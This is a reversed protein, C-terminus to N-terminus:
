KASNDENDNANNDDSDDDEDSSDQDDLETSRKALDWVMITTDTSGSFLKTGCMMLCNVGIKHGVYVALLQKSTADFARTLNDSCGTYVIGKHFKICNVTNNHGTFTNLAEVTLTKHQHLNRPLHDDAGVEWGKVVGGGDGSYLLQKLVVLCVVHHQHGAFVRFCIGTALDWSRLTRDASGTYLLRGANDTALCSVCSTHGEFKKLCTGSTFCWSRATCDMSGTIIVDGLGKVENIQDDGPIIALCYIGGTHGQFTRICVSTDDHEELEDEDIYWAKATTDQSTSFVYEGTCLVRTVRSNHGYSVLVSLTTKVLPGSEPLRTRPAPSSCLSTTRPPWATSAVM